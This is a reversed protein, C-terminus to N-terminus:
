LKAADVAKPQIMVQLHTHKWTFQRFVDRPLRVSQLPAAAGTEQYCVLPRGPTPILARGHFHTLRMMQSFYSCFYSM